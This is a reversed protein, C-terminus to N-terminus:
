SFPRDEVPCAALPVTDVRSAPGVPTALTFQYCRTAGVSGAPGSAVGHVEAVVTLPNGDLMVSVLGAPLHGVVDTIEARTLRGDASRDALQRAITRAVDRTQDDATRAARDGSHPWAFGFFWILAAIGLVALGLVAGVLWGVPRLRRAGSQM